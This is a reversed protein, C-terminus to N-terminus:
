DNLHKKFCTCIQIMSLPTDISIKNIIQQERERDRQRGLGKREREDREIERM